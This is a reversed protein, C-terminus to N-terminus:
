RCARFVLQRFTHSRFRPRTWVPSRRAFCCLFMCCVYMDKLHGLEATKQNVRNKELLKVAVRSEAIIEQNRGDFNKM